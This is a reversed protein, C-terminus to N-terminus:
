KNEKLMGMWLRILVSSPLVKSLLHQFKTFTNYVVIPKNKKIGKMAYDITAQADLMPTYKKPSRPARDLRTHDFFETKVWGPCFVTVWIDKPKLEYYLARSYHRIFSKTSAYINFYPLPNFVSASGLNVIHSNKAMYPVCISCMSVTAKVNLDIMQLEPELPTVGCEGFEGFGAANVLYGIQTKSSKLEAAITDFSARDTLDLLMIKTKTNLQSALEELREKRRAILWLEDLGEGDLKRTILAGMGSSAGTVIGIKM